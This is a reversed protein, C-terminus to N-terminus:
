LGLGEYIEDGRVVVLLGLGEFMDERRKGYYCAKSVLWKGLGESVDVMLHRFVVLLFELVVLTSLFLRGLEDLLFANDLLFGLVVIFLLPGLLQLSFIDQFLNLQGYFGLSLENGFLTM